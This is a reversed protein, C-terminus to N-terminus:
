GRAPRSITPTRLAATCCSWSRCRSARTAAPCMSRTPGVERTTRFAASRSGRAKRCPSRVASRTRTGVRSVLGPRVLRRSVRQMTPALDPPRHGQRLTDVRAATRGRLIPLRGPAERISPSRGHRTPARRRKIGEGPSARRGPTRGAPTSPRQGQLLAMAEALKGARTLRTVEAM